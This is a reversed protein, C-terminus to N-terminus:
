ALVAALAPRDSDFFVNPIATSTVWGYALSHIYVFIGRFPFKRMPFNTKLKCFAQIAELQSLVCFGGM